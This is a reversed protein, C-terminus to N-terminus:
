KDNKLYILASPISIVFLIRYYKFGKIKNFLWNATNGIGNWIGKVINTGISVMAKPLNAFGNKIANVAKKAGEKGKNALNFCFQVFRNYANTLQTWIKGPLQTFFKVINNITQPIKQTAVDKLEPVFDLREELLEKRRKEEQKMREMLIAKRLDRQKRIRELKKYQDAILWKTRRKITSLESIEKYIREEEEDSESKIYITERRRKRLEELYRSRRPNCGTSM